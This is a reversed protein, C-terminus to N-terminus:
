WELYASMLHNKKIVEPVFMYFICVIDREDDTMVVVSWLAKTMTKIIM